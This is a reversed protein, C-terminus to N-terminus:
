KPKTESFTCSTRASSGPEILKAEIWLRCTGDVRDRERQRVDLRRRMESAVTTYAEFFLRRLGSVREDEETLGCRVVVKKIFQSDDSQGPVYSSSFAYKGLTKWGFSCLKQHLDLLGCATCAELFYATSHETM